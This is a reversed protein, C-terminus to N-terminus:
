AQFFYNMVKDFFFDFPPMIKLKFELYFLVQKCWNELGKSCIVLLMNHKDNPCYVNAVILKVIDNELVAIAFRGADDKSEEVCEYTNGYLIMVGASNTSICSSLYGGRWYSKIVNEDKIHTEQLLVVGGHGVEHRVNM